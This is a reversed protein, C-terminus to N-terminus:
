AKTPAPGASEGTDTEKVPRLEDRELAVRAREALHREVATVRLELEDVKQEVERRLEDAGGSGSVKDPM